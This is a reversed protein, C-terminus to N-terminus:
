TRAEVTVLIREPYPTPLRTKTLYLTKILPGLAAEATYVVTHLTTKSRIMDTTTKM